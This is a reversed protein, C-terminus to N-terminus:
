EDISETGSAAKNGLTSRGIRNEFEDMV